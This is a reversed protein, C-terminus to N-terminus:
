AEEGSRVRELQEVSKRVWDSASSADKISQPALFLPADDNEDEFDSVSAAEVYFGVDAVKRKAAVYHWEHGLARFFAPLATTAALSSLDLPDTYEKVIVRLKYRDDRVGVFGSEVQVSYGAGILLDAMVLAAVGRWRMVDSDVSASAISDIVIRVRAPGRGEAKRMARWANDLNGSWVRQMEVDDGQDSWVSRRRVYTPAPAEVSASVQAMLAVGEEWGERILRLNAACSSEGSKAVNSLGMWEHRGTKRWQLRAAKNSPRESSDENSMLRVFDTLTYTGTITAM